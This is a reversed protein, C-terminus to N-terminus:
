FYSEKRLSQRQLLQMELWNKKSFGTIKAIYNKSRRHQVWEQPKEVYLGEIVKLIVEM